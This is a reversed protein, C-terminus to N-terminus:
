LNLEKGDFPIKASAILNSYSTRLANEEQMLGIISMDMSKLENEMTAFAVKGIKEEMYSRHPSQYLAMRYGNLLNELEPGVEDYYDKEGNYFEDATNCDHRISAITMADMTDKMLTYYEQHVEWLAAGSEAHKAKEILAKVGECAAGFDLRQYPMDKFKM